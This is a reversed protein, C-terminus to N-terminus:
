YAAIKDDIGSGSLAAIAAAVVFHVLFNQFAVAERFDTKARIAHLAVHGCQASRVNLHVSNKGNVASVVFQRHWYLDLYERIVPGGVSVERNRIHLPTDLVWAREHKPDAFRNFNVNVRRASIRRGTTRM